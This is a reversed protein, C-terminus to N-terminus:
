REFGFERAAGVGRSVSAAATPRPEIRAVRPYIPERHRSSGPEPRIRARSRRSRLRRQRFDMRRASNGRLRGARPRSSASTHGRPTEHGRVPHLARHVGILLSIMAGVAVLVVLVRTARRTGREVHVVGGGHTPAPEPWALGDLDVCGDPRTDRDRPVACRTPQADRMCPYGPLGRFPGVFKARRKAAKAM